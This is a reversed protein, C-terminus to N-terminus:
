ELSTLYAVLAQLADSDFEITPMFNGPKIAQPDAIWAALNDANNDLAGAALTQRSALHTLDPGVEGVADTGRM